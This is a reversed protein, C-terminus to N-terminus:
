KSLPVLGQPAAGNWSRHNDSNEKTNASKVTDMRSSSAVLLQSDVTRPHFKEVKTAM